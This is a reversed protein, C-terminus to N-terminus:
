EDSMRFPKEPKDRYRDSKVFFSKKHDAVVLPPRNSSTVRKDQGRDRIMISATVQSENTRNIIKCCDKRSGVMREFKDSLIRRDEVRRAEHASVNIRGDHLTFKAKRAIM